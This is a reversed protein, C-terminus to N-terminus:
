SVEEKPKNNNVIYKSIENNNILIDDLITEINDFDWYPIRILIINNNICYEDKRRDHEQQKILRAEAIENPENKYMKIIKYHFEGDYEILLRLKTKEEDYFISEDFKLLGSGVGILGNFTYQPTYIYSHKIFFERCKKEGKPENCKPCSRGSSRHSITDFWEHNCEKCLWWVKQGSVPTYEEPLNDNKDYNWEECLKPNIVLLNYDESPLPNHCCYPCNDGRFNRKSITATWEHKSNISCKWWIGNDHGSVTVDYPTLNGNKTPHWESALEPNKTALCNSLTVQQGRCCICRYGQLISDWNAEFIEGCNNDLCRWQMYEDCNIYEKSMLEFPKNNLKCWLKINKVTYKNFSSFKNPVYGKLLNGLNETLYYGERDEFLLHKDNGKYIKTLLNYPLNNLELYLRINNLSYPNSTHFKHPTYKRMNYFDGAYYYGNLDKVIVFKKGNKIEIKVLEYNLEGMIEKISENTYKKSM